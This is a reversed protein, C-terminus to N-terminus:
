WPVVARWLPLENMEIPPRVQNYNYDRFPPMRMTLCSPFTTRVSSTIIAVHDVQRSAIEIVKAADEFSLGRDAKLFLLREVRTAFIDRLRFELESPKLPRDLSLRVDGNHLVHAIIERGDGCTDPKPNEAIAVSLGIPPPRLLVVAIVALILLLSAFMPSNVRCAQQTSASVM